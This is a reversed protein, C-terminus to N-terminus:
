KVDVKFIIVSCLLQVTEPLYYKYLIIKPNKLYIAFVSSISQYFNGLGCCMYM